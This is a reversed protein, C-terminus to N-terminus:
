LGHPTLPSSHPTSDLATKGSTKSRVGSEESKVAANIAIMWEAADDPLDIVSGAPYNRGAHEHAKTLEIRM